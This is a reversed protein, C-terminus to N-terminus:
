GQVGSSSNEVEACTPGNIKGWQVRFGFWQTACARGPKHSVILQGTLTDRRSSGTRKPSAPLSRSPAGSMYSVRTSKANSPTLNMLPRSFHTYTSYRM